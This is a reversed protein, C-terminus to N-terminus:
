QKSLSSPPQPPLLPPPQSQSKPAQILLKQELLDQQMLHRQEMKRKKKALKEREKEIKRQETLLIFDEFEKRKQRLEANLKKQKTSLEVLREFEEQGNVKQMLEMTNKPLRLQTLLRANSDIKQKPLLGPNTQQQNPLNLQELNQKNIIDKVTQGEGRGKRKRSVIPIPEGIENTTSSPFPSETPTADGLGCLQKATLKSGGGGIRQFM